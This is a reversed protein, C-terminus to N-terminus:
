KIENLKRRYYDIKNTIVGKYSETPRSHGNRGYLEDYANNLEHELYERSQSTYHGDKMGNNRWWEDPKGFSLQPAFRAIRGLQM